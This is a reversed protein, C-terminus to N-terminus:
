KRGGDAAAQLAIWDQVAKAAAEYVSSVQMDDEQGPRYAHWINNRLHRPIRFWHYRCGWMAPPVQVVCGPWHCHHKRSQSASRVHAAKNMERGRVPVVAGAGDM